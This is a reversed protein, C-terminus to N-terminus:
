IVNEKLLPNAGWSAWTSNQNTAWQARTKPRAVSAWEQWTVGNRTVYLPRIAVAHQMDMDANISRSDEVVLGRVTLRTVHEDRVEVMDGLQLGPVPILAVSSLVPQPVTARAGYYDAVYQAQDPYQILWGADIAHEPASAPGNQASYTLRETFVYKGKGRIIPLDFERRTRWLFSTPGEDPTRQVAPETGTWQVWTKFARDTVREVTMLLSGSLQAWQDVTDGTGSIIGGYFSGIGRNFDEFGATGVRLLSTDPMVWVEDDPVNIWAEQVDGAQLTQGGGQYLDVSTTWSWERLPEQWKVSARSRVSSLSHSWTFGAEAIDDDSNLDAAVARSELRALDWWRLVGTEDIWYTSAEAECMRALWDACNVGAEDRRVMLNNRSAIRTNIVANPVWGTLTGPVAPHAIQFGGGAGNGAITARRIPETTARSDVAISATASAAGSRITCSVLTDTVHEVTAYLLGNTRAVRAAEVYTGGPGRVYLYGLGDTWSLRVLGMNNASRAEIRMSGGGSGATMAALEVRGREKVSHGPGGLWYDSDVGSVAVGWPSLPWSPFAGSETGLCKEVTGIEPWMTGQGPVSLVVWQMKPPTSFWGCHRLIMDVISSTLMSVYRSTGREDQSPMAAAVADWSISRDLSQYQDAVEVGVERGSSGGDASMVRGNTLLSVMGSGTDMRVSAPTEPVPPWQTGPDWPTAVTSAVDAGEVAVLEGSAATLSGGALPDPLARDMSASVLEVERGGIRASLSPSYVDRRSVPQQM